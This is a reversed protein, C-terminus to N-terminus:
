IGQQPWNFLKLPGIQGRAKPAYRGYIELQCEPRTSKWGILQATTVPFKSKPQCGKIPPLKLRDKAPTGPASSDPSPTPPKGMLHRNM